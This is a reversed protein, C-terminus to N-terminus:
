HALEVKFKDELIKIKSVSDLTGDQIQKKARSIILQAYGLPASEIVNQYHDLDFTFIEDVNQPSILRTYLKDLGLYNAIEEDLILLWPEELFRRASSKMTLLEGVELYEIDGYREFRVETGTRKSVYTLGGSTINMVPVLEHRDFEAQKIRKIPIPKANVPTDSNESNKKSEEIAKEHEHSAVAMKYIKELEVIEKKSLEEKSFLDSLNLIKEVINKKSM